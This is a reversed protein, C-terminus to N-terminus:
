GIVGALEDLRHALTGVLNRLEIASDIGSVLAPKGGGAGPPMPEMGRVRGLITEAIEIARLVVGTTKEIEGIMTASDSATQTDGRGMDPDAGVGMRAPQATNRPYRM